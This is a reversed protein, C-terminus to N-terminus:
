EFDVCRVQDYRPSTRLLRTLCEMPSGLDPYEFLSLISPSWGSLMVVGRDYAEASFQKYEERVNWIVITPANYKSVAFRKKIAEVHTDGKNATVADFGMDTIILLYKPAHQPEENSKVLTTYLLEVAKELNTNYGQGADDLDRIRDMLSKEPSLTVLRPEADFTIVKNKFLGENLSSCLLGMAISVYFPTDRVEMMSGSTDCMAVTKGLLGSKMKRLIDNFQSELVPFIDDTASKVMKRVIEHPFVVHAGHAVVKGTTLATCFDNYNHACQQRDHATSRPILGGKTKKLNKFAMTHGNLCRGPMTKFDLAQWNGSCMHHEPTRLSETLDRLTLRYKKMRYKPEGNFMRAAILEAVKSYKKGERPLWKVLLSVPKKMRLADLDNGLQLEIFDLAARQLGLEKRRYSEDIIKIIDLYSGYEPILHIVKQIWQKKRTHIAWLLTHFLDKEGKGGRVDRTQFLLVMLDKPSCKQPDQDLITNVSKRISDPSLGRNLMTYLDLIEEGTSEFVTAGNVGTITPTITTAPATTITMEGLFTFVLPRTVPSNGTVKWFILVM